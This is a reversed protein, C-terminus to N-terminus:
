FSVVGALLLGVGIVLVAALVFLARRRRRQRLALYGAPDLWVDASARHLAGGGALRWLAFRRVLSPAPFQMPHAPDIAGQEHLAEVLRREAGKLVAALVGLM